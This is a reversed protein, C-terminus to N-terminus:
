KKIAWRYSCLLAGFAVRLKARNEGDARAWAVALASAFGGGVREMAQLLEPEFQELLARNNAQQKTFDDM